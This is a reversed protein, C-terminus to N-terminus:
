IGQSLSGSPEILTEGHGRLEWARHDVAFGWLWANDPGKTLPVTLYYLALPVNSVDLGWVGFARSGLGTFGLGWVKCGM